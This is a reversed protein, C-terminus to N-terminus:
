RALPRAMVRRRRRGRNRLLQDLTFLGAYLLSMVVYEGVATSSVEGGAPRPSVPRPAPLLQTLEDASLPGRTGILAHEIANRAYRLRHSLESRSLYWPFAEMAFPLAYDAFLMSLILRRVFARACMLPVTPSWVTGEAGLGRANVGRPPWRERRGFAQIRGTKRFMGHSHATSM